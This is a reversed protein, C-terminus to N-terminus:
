PEWAPELDDEPEEVAPFALGLQDGDDEKQREASTYPNLISPLHPTKGNLLEEITFIQIKHYTDKTWTSTFTGATAAADKMGKTPPDLTVLVGGVAGATGVAGVLQDVMSRVLSHGGKVSVVVKDFKKRDSTHLRVIGDSGKDGVQKENPRGGVLTVAWREFEFKNRDALRKAGELDVPKGLVEYTNAPLTPYREQLRKDILDVALFSIDIGIWKRGLAQAADVTTGCGCFPDLVVDGENSSAAILLELLARPKQTPYGLREPDAQHLANIDFIVDDRLRGEDAYYRYKKGSKWTGERYRRGEDDVYRFNQELSAPEHEIRVRADKSNFTYTKSNTYRLIIDHKKGFAKKSRGGYKYYWVIENGFNEPGFIADLVMKLYHSATPDCHLYLTANSKMVRRLDILRPAMMAIYAMLDCKGLITFLGELTSAVKDTAAAVTQTYVQDIEPSWKWTDEFALIQGASDDGVDNRLFINYNRKSNFPPDLYVLDVSNAAIEENLVDLNDGFYLFNETEAGKKM